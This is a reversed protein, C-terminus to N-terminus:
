IIMKSINDFHSPRYSDHDRVRWRPWNYPDADTMDPIPELDLTRHKALIYQRHEESLQAIQDEVYFDCQKGSEMEHPSAKAGEVHHHQTDMKEM